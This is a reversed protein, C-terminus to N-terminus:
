CTMQNFVQFLPYAQCWVLCASLKKTRWFLHSIVKSEYGGLELSWGDDVDFDLSMLFIKICNGLWNAGVIRTKSVHTPKRGQFFYPQSFIPHLFYPAFFCSWSNIKMNLFLLPLRVKHDMGQFFIHLTSAVKYKNFNWVRFPYWTSIM